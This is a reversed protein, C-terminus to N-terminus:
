FVVGLPPNFGFGRPQILNAHQGNNKNGEQSLTKPKSMDARARDLSM